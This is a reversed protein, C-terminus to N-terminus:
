KKFISLTEKINNKQIQSKIYSEIINRILHDINDSNLIIRLPTTVEDLEFPCLKYLCFLSSFLFKEFSTYIGLFSTQTLYSNFDRSNLSKKLEKIKYLNNNENNLSSIDKELEFYFKGILLINELSSVETQFSLYAKEIEFPFEEYFIM